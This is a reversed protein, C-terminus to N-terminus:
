LSLTQIVSELHTNFTDPDDMMVFHGVGTMEIYQFADTLAEIGARDTPRYGSNILVFPVGLGAIGARQDYDSLGRMASKSVRPPASAMDEIVWDRVAPDSEPVFMTRVIAKVDDVFNEDMNAIRADIEAATPRQAVSRLTDVGVVAAVRGKLLNGAEVVVPGGMSHGVLVVNKLGLAEVVAAVDAGFSQMTFAERNDGSEGHGALDVTVVRYRTQFYDRQADWYSRDCNWGHVFVITASGAGQDDYRITVGDPSMITSSVMAAAAPTAPMSTETPQDTMTNEVANEPPSCAALSALAAAALVTRLMM